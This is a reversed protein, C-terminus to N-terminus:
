IYTSFNNLLLDTFKAESVRKQICSCTYDNLLKYYHKFFTRIKIKCM